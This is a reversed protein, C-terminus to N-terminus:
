KKWWGQILNNLKDMDSRTQTADLATLVDVGAAYYFKRQIQRDDFGAARQIGAWQAISERLQEHAAIREMQRAMAGNAAAPGGVMGARHAASAASELTTAARMQALKERDLLILDGEVMELTRLRPEPLPKEMGCYPCAVMFKQYPKTCAICTTLPIEEPDKIQKARKDRRMLSWAVEKDPLGHRIVNSVMDIILAVKGVIYRLARGVMQRYKGLSATPRAMMVVDCAPVDFGEDFLDVNVLVQIKGTKFEEIYKERTDPPTEASLSAARVGYNAFKAAIDNSTEVDTAFVITRRGFAYRCYNEVVDGVIHSKKAAKKLKSHSWDGDNSVDGEDEIKMDSKPCLIEFDCLFHNDILWRMSPGMNMVHFLGDGGIEKVGLGKGDARLPTASFGAGLAHPMMAIAKGWKNELLTHHCNHVVIENAVYTHLDAVEINYVYSSVNSGSKSNGSELIEINELGVFHAVCRKESGGRAASNGSSEPWGSRCNGETGAGGYGSQLDCSLGIGKEHENKDQVSSCIPVTDFSKDIRTGGISNTERQWGTSDAQTQNAEANGVDKQSIGRVEDSQKEEDASICIKSKDQEDNRIINEGSVGTLMNECKSSHSSSPMCLMTQHNACTETEQQVTKPTCRIRMKESLVDQRNQALSLTPERNDDNNSRWMRFVSLSDDYRLDGAEVWGRQTWFPHGYTTEIVHHTSTTLRLMKDHMPNKFLRTIKKEEFRGCKENFAIVTDGVRLAEIPIKGKSTTILTGAPFCEDMMWRDHQRAWDKLVDARKVLTDVGIVSTRATPHVFCQGNFLKRHIRRIQNQTKDSGIIRHPIGQRAVHVSMQSVLENRHAIICQMASQEYLRRAIKSMVVSKGGGTALVNIVNQGADWAAYTQQELMDQYERSQVLQTM